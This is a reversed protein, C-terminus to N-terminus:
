LATKRGAEKTTTCTVIHDHGQVKRCDYRNKNERQYDKNPYIRLLTWFVLLILCVKGYRFLQLKQSQEDCPFM